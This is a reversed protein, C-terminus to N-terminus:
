PISYQDTGDLFNSNWTGNTYKKYGNDVFVYDSSKRVNSFEIYNIEIIKTVDVNSSQLRFGPADTNATIVYTCKDTPQLNTITITKEAM